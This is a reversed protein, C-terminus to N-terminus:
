TKFWGLLEKATERHLSKIYTVLDEISITTNGDADYHEDDDILDALEALLQIKATIHTQPDHTNHRNAYARMREENFRPTIDITEPMADGKAHNSM